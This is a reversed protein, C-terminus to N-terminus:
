FLPFKMPNELFAIVDEKKSLNTPASFYKKFTRLLEDTNKSDETDFFEAIFDDARVLCKLFRNAKTDVNYCSVVPLEPTNFLYIRRDVHDLETTKILFDIQEKIIKASLCKFRNVGLYFDRYKSADILENSKYIGSEFVKRRQSRIKVFAELQDAFLPYDFATIKRTVEEIECTVPFVPAVVYREGGECNKEFILRREEAEVFDSEGPLVYNPATSQKEFYKLIEVSIGLPIWKPNKKYRYITPVSMKIAEAIKVVEAKTALKVEMLRRIEDLANKPDINKM